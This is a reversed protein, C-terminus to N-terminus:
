IGPSTEFSQSQTRSLNQMLFNEPKFMPIYVYDIYIRHVIFTKAIFYFITVRCDCDLEAHWTKPSAYCTEHRWERKLNMRENKTGKESIQKM